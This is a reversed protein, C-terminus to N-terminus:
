GAVQGAVTPVHTPVVVVPRGTRRAYRVIRDSERESMDESAVGVVIVTAHHDQAFAEVADPAVLHVEAGHRHAYDSGWAFAATETREDSTKVVATDFDSTHM